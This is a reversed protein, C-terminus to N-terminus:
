IPKRLRIPGRFEFNEVREGKQCIEIEGKKMMSVAVHRTAEMEDRWSNPFALRAAERPCITKGVDRKALLDLIAERLPAESDSM